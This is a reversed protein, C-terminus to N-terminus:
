GNIEEYTTIIAPLINNFIECGFRLRCSIGNWSITLDTEDLKAWKKEDSPNIKNMVDVFDNAPIEIHIKDKEDRWLNTESIKKIAQHYIALEMKSIDLDNDLNWIKEKMQKYETESMMVMGNETVM